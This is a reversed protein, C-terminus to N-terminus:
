VSQVRGKKTISLSYSQLGWSHYMIGSKEGGKTIGLFELIRRKEWTANPWTYEWGLNDGKQGLRRTVCIFLKSEGLIFQM